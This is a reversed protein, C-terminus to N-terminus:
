DVQDSRVVTGAGVLMREGFRASLRGISTLPDPSNLPVEIIRIGGDFIAEGIAEVEDPTVGRIIAILPCEDLFRRLLEKATVDSGRRSKSFATSFVNNVTSSSRKANRRRSRLRM